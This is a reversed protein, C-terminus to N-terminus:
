FSVLLVSSPLADVNASEAKNLNQQYHEAFTVIEEDSIDCGHVNRMVIVDLLTLYEHLWPRKNEKCWNAYPELIICPTRRFTKQNSCKKTSQSLTRFIERFFIYENKHIGDTHNLIQVDDTVLTRPHFLHVSEQSDLLEATYKIPDDKYCTIKQRLEIVSFSFENGKLLNCDPIFLSPLWM